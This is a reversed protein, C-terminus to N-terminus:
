SLLIFFLLGLGISVSQSLQPAALLALRLLGQCGTLRFRRLSGSFCSFLFDEATPPLLEAM